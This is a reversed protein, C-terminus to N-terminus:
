IMSLCRRTGSRGSPKLYKTRSLGDYLISSVPIDNGFDMPADFVSEIYSAFRITQSGEEVVAKDYGVCHEAPCFTFSQESKAPVNSEVLGCKHKTCISMNRIQHKRHWYAEGYTKRDDEACLPCFRLYQEGESRPLVCFLHHADCNDHGLRYLATKKQELPIFRAYQPYMTHEMVLKDLSYMKAIQEMAGPNLNGIFEKSPNDSRKCYLEQMASKSSFFGSHVYYRCLWSYVLEDPYIAPFYSIM